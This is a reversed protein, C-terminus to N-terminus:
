TFSTRLLEKGIVSTVKVLICKSDTWVELYETLEAFESGATILKFGNKHPSLISDIYSLFKLKSNKFEMLWKVDDEDLDDDEYLIDALIDDFAYTDGKAIDVIECFNTFSSYDTDLNVPLTGYDNEKLIDFLRQLTKNFRNMNATNLNEFSDWIDAASCVGIKSGNIPLVIYGNGNGRRLAADSETTCIVSKNRKPYKSWSPLNSLLLNYYNFDAYPSERESFSKPNITFYDDKYLRHGRYIPTGKLAQSCSKHIFDRADKETVSISRTETLYDNLRTM